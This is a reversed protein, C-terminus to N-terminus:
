FRLCGCRLKISYNRAVIEFTKADFWTTMEDIVVDSKKDDKVKIPLYM